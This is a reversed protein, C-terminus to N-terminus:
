WPKLFLARDQLALSQYVKATTEVSKHHLLDSVVQLPVGQRLLHIARSHRLIHSAGKPLGARAAAQVFAHYVARYDWDLFVKGAVAADAEHRAPVSEKLWAKIAAVGQTTIPSTGQRGGKLYVDLYPTDEDIHLDSRTTRTEPDHFRLRLSLVSSIRLASDFMVIAIARPCGDLAGIFRQVQEATYYLNPPTPDFMRHFELRINLDHDQWRLYAQIASAVKSIYTPKSGKEVMSVLYAQATETTPGRGDLWRVWRNLVQGYTLVTQPLAPRSRLPDAIYVLFEGTRAVPSLVHLTM